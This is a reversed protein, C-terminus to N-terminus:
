DGVLGLRTKTRFSIHFLFISFRFVKTEFSQIIQFEARLKEGVAKGRTRTCM